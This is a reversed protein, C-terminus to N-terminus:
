RHPAGGTLRSSGGGARCHVVRRLVLQLRRLFKEPRNVRSTARLTALASWNSTPFVPSSNRGAHTPPTPAAQSSPPSKTGRASGPSTESAFMDWRVGKTTAALHSAYHMYTYNVEGQVDIHEPGLSRPGLADTSIGRTAAVDAATEAL